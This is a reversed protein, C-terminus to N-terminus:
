VRSIGWRWALVPIHCFFWPSCAVPVKLLFIEDTMTRIIVTLRMLVWVSKTQLQWHPYSQTQKVVGKGCGTRWHRNRKTQTVSQLWWLLSRCHGLCGQLHSGIRPCYPALHCYSTGTHGLSDAPLGPCLWMHVSPYCIRSAVLGELMYLYTYM